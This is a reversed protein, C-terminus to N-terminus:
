ERNTRLIPFFFAWSFARPRALSVNWDVNRRSLLAESKTSVIALALVARDPGHRVAAKLVLEKRAEPSLRNTAATM